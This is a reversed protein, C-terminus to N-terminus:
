GYVVDKDRSIEFDFHESIAMGCSLSYLLGSPTVIIQTVIRRYQEPDTTLYVVEGFNFKNNINM